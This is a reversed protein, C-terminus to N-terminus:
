IHWQNNKRIEPHFKWFCPPWNPDNFPTKFTEKTWDGGWKKKYYSVNNAYTQDNAAKTAKTKKATLGSTGAIGHNVNVTMAQKIGIGLVECRHFWDFDEYYAPYFNEDFTGVSLLGIQTVAWMSAAVNAVVAACSEQERTAVEDFLALQGPPFEIDDNCLVWYEAPFLKIAENWSQAVGANPHRIVIRKQSHEPFLHNFDRLSNSNDIIALTGIPHDISKLCRELMDQRNLTPIALVPIM